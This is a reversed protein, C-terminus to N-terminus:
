KEEFSFKIHELSTVIEEGQKCIFDVYNIAILGAFKTFSDKRRNQINLYKFYFAVLPSKFYYTNETNRVNDGYQIREM